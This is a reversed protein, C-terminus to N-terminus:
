IRFMANVAMMHIVCRMILPMQPSFPRPRGSHTREPPQEPFTSIHLSAVVATNNIWVLASYALGGRPKAAVSGSTSSTNPVLHYVTGEPLVDGQRSPRPLWSYSWQQHFKSPAACTPSQCKGGRNSNADGATRAAPRRPCTVVLRLCPLRKGDEVSATVDLTSPVRKAACQMLLRMTAVGMTTVAGM